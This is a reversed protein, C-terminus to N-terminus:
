CNLTKKNKYFAVKSTFADFQLCSHQNQKIGFGGWSDVKISSVYM